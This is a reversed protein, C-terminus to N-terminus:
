GGPLTINVGLQGQAGWQEQDLAMLINLRAKNAIVWQLGLAAQVVSLTDSRQQMATLSAGNEKLLTFETWENLVPNFATVVYGKGPGDRTGLVRSETFVTVTGLGATPSIAANGRLGYASLSQLATVDPAREVMLK